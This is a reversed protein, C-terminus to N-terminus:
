YYTTLILNKRMELMLSPHINSNIAGPHCCSCCPIAVTLFDQPTLFPPSLTHDEGVPRNHLTLSSHPSSAATLASMQSKMDNSKRDKNILKM